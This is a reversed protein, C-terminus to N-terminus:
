LRKIMYTNELKYGLKKYYQRAGVGSIVAIRKFGFGKKTIREAEKILKKGLGKHQASIHSKDKKNGQNNKDSTIPVQLGFTQIERIIAAEKLANIFHSKSSYHFSPVRLRLLSFLKTRKKNEFSLFIEKGDSANYDERLLYEKEQPNYGKKVERCRICHCALNQKKMEQHIIERLNSAKCGAVIKQAPIDRFLRTIRVWYPLNKKIKILLNILEKKSYPRYKNKKWLQFLKAKKSVVCPYIKLWDPKFRQDKFMIQFAKFDKEINSGPLNPMVQYLVKFGADKLLKTARAIKKITLDTQSKKLIDDFVTQVGMEVLTVGLKRLRIIEKETIYDPRTEISLGVIRNKAKENKKHVDRLKQGRALFKTKTRPTSKLKSKEFDNCAQFCKKIFYTQYQKPYVSWTGGVIRLEIKDTPHGQSKLMEIRKQVQLYPDFSLTKAREVAPEGSLYSKPLGKETPCFICKGPCPYSKTLVSINVIGSLSRVPRTKLLVEIEKSPKINKNKLLKHYIKLLTVNSPCDIKFQKAIKRKLKNLGAQNKIKSGILKKILIKYPNNKTTAKVM